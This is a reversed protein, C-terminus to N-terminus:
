LGLQARQLVPDFLGALPDDEHEFTAISGALASCDLGDGLADARASKTEHRQRRRGLAFFRLHVHLAIERMERRSSLDHDEVAAPVVAGADFVYHSEAGLLLVLSKQLDAWGELFVDDIIADPEDLVPKFDAVLLLLPSELGADVVAHPLPLQAVH